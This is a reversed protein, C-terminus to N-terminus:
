QTKVKAQGREMKLNKTTLGRLTWSRWREDRLRKRITIAWPKENSELQSAWDMLRVRIVRM